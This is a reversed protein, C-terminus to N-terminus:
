GGSAGQAVAEGASASQFEHYGAYGMSEDHIADGAEGHCVKGDISFDCLLPKNAQGALASGTAGGLRGAISSARASKKAASLSPSVFGHYDSLSSDKHVAARRTYNCVECHEIKRQQQKTAPKSVKVPGVTEALMERESESMGRLTNLLATEDDTLERELKFIKLVDRYSM